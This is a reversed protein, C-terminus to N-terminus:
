IDEPFPLDPFFDKISCNFEVALLNLHNLNYKSSNNPSEIQGIFGRTTQLFSAIDDQSYGKNTRIEKIRDIM